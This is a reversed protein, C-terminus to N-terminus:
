QYSVRSLHQRTVKWATVDAPLPPLVNALVAAVARSFAVTCGRPESVEDPPWLAWAGPEGAVNAATVLVM